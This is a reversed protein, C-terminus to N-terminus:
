KVLKNFRKLKIQWAPNLIGKHNKWRLLLCIKTTSETNMVITNNNKIKDVSIVRLENNKIKDLYFKNDKWLLYLKDKQELLKDNLKDFNFSGYNELFSKISKNVIEDKEKKYKKEYNKLTEFFIDKKYSAQYVYRLYQKREPIKLNYLECIKPLFNKYFYDAYKIETYNKSSMSLFQPLREISSCNYKFEIKITKCVNDNKYFKILYDYNYKRGGKHEVKYYDYDDCLLNIKENLKLKLVKWKNNEYWDDPIKDNLICDIIDERNSNSSDNKSKKDIMYFKNIDNYKIIKNKYLIKKDDLDNKSPKIEKSTIILTNNDSIILNKLKIKDIEEM